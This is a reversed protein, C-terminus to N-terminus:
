ASGVFFSVGGAGDGTRLLVGLMTAFLIFMTRKLSTPFMRDSGLIFAADLSYSRLETVLGFLKREDSPVMNPCGDGVEIFLPSFKRVSSPSCPHIFEVRYYVQCTVDSAFEDYGHSCGITPNCKVSIFCQTKGFIDSPALYNKM